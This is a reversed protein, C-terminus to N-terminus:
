NAKRKLKALPAMRAKFLQLTDGSILYSDATNLALFFATEKEMREGQCMMLTSAVTFKIRNNDELKYSGMMTNCGGFGQVKSGDKILKIHIEKADAPTTVPKGMTEILAWYNDELTTTAPSTAKQTATCGILFAFLIVATFLTITKM